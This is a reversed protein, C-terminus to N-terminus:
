FRGAVGISGPTATVTIPPEDRHTLYLIAATVGSAAAVGFGINAFLGWTHGRDEIAVLESYDHTGSAKDARWQDQAIGFRWACLGGGVLAVGSVAAWTSWRAHLATTRIPVTPLVNQVQPLAASDNPARSDWLHNGSADLAAIELATVGPQLQIRLAHPESVDAHHGTPDVVHVHVGAVLHLPDSTPDVSVLGAHITASVALATVRSRAAGFPGTLKPSTGEPLVADPRLTLAKAFHEEAVAARDLGAALQGALLHLEATRASDAGGHAIAREVIVLAREYELAGQLRKAEILEDEAHASAAVALIVLFSLARM